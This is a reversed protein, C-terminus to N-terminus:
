WRYNLSVFAAKPTAYVSSYLTDPEHYRSTIAFNYGWAIVGSAAVDWWHHQKSIIRSAGVFGAAAYAPVGYEWGYRDWLYQAPAFALASTDSPFSRDDCGLQGQCYPREEKVVHKLLFATAVTAGTVAVLQVAGNWDDKYISIGGAIVPLAIAVGNGVDQLGKDTNAGSNSSAALAPTFASFLACAVWLGTRAFM